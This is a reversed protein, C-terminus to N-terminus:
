EGHYRGEWVKAFNTENTLWEIDACFVRRGNVPQAKGTLFKSQGVFEFYERWEDLNAIDGSKWRAHIQGRRKSTLKQVSPLGPLVEHYLDIIKQYPIKESPPKEDSFGCTGNPVTNNIHNKPEKTRQNKPKQNPNKESENPNGSIVSQTKKPKEEDTLQQKKPRGGKKGNSANVKAKKHYAEIEEEIRGHIWGNETQEFFDNLVSLLNEESDLGLCLRRLVSQTKKPIPKEDLYYWDILQRYIYHEIPTLHVTDKRYDAINFQYYHMLRGDNGPDPRAAEKRIGQSEAAWM